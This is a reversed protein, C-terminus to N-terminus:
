PMQPLSCHSAEQFVGLIAGASAPLVQAVALASSVEGPTAGLACALASSHRNDLVTTWTIFIANIAALSVLVVM